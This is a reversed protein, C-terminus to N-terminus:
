AAKGKKKGKVVEVLWKRAFEMIEESPDANGKARCQIIKKDHMELTVLSEEPADTKRIVFVSTKGKKVRDFYSAVCNMNHRGEKSFDEYDRLPRIFYKGDSFALKELAPLIKEKYLADEKKRRERKEKDLKERLEKSTKDHMEFFDKPYLYYENMPYELKKAQDLYDVYEGKVKNRSYGYAGHSCQPKNNEYLKELYRALRVPDTGKLPLDYQYNAVFPGIDSFFKFFDDMDRKTIRKHTKKIEKYAAIHDADFMKWQKLKGIDQSTIGLLGPLDKKRWNPRLYTPRNWVMADEIEGLGAKNLYELQPYKANLAMRKIRDNINYSRPSNFYNGSYKLCSKKIAAPTSPHIYPDLETISHHIYVKNTATFYGGWNLYTKQEGRGIKGIEEIFLTGKKEQLHEFDPQEYKYLASVLTFYFTNQEARATIIVEGIIETRTYPIARGRNQCLPCTIRDNANFTNMSYVTRAKPMGHGPVTYYFYEGCAFCFAKKQGRNYIIPHDIVKHAFKEIDKPLKIKWPAKPTEKLIYEM